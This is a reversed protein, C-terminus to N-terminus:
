TLHASTFRPFVFIQLFPVFLKSETSMSCELWNGLNLICNSNWPPQEGGISMAAPLPQCSTRKQRAQRVVHRLVIVLVFRAPILEQMANANRHNEGAYDQENKHFPNPSCNKKSTSPNKKKEAVANFSVM